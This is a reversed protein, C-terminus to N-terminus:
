TTIPDRDCSREASTTATSWSFHGCRASEITAPSLEVAALPSSTTIAVGHSAAHVVALDTPWRRAPLTTSQM